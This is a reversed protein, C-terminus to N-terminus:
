AAREIATAAAKGGCAEIEVCVTVSLILASRLSLARYYKIMLM